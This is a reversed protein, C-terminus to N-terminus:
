SPKKVFRRNGYRMEGNSFTVSEGWVTFFFGPRYEVLKSGGARSAFLYGNRLFVTAMSTEGYATGEYTGVFQSWEPKAPGAAEGLLENAVFTDVGIGGLDEAWASRTQPSSHFRFFEDDTTYIGDGHFSLPLNNSGVQYHLKGDVVCFTRMGSYARYTGELSKMAATDPAVAPRDTLPRKSDAPLSGLTDKLLTIVVEDAIEAALGGDGDNTLVVMGIGYEPIWRQETDYGYGGGGHSYLTGGRYPRSFLGLGYGAAQHSVPFQPTEMEKRLAPALLPAAHAAQAVGLQWIVFKAMDDASSYMGGAGLMPIYVGVDKGDQQGKVFAAAHVAKARDYTSSDMGLPRFLEEEAIQAFPKGARKELVYAVIDPGLNSYAYRSGPPAVLWSQSISAVHDDFTCNGDDYNNGVPAEHLLGAWHSLLQRLTIKQYDSDDFRSNVRFRPMHDILRDDLGFWGREVARLFLFTTYTKSISQLSFLSAPTVPVTKSQDAFGFGDRWVVENRDVVAISVGLTKEREMADQIFRTLHDRSATAFQPGGAAAVPHSCISGGFASALALFTRRDLYV